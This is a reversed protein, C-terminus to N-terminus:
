TISWWGVGLAFAFYLHMNDDGYDLLQIKNSYNEYGTKYFITAIHIMFPSIIHHLVINEEWLVRLRAQTESYELRAYM